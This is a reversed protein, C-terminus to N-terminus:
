SLYLPEQVKDEQIAFRGARLQEGKERVRRSILDSPMVIRYDKVFPTSYKDEEEKIVMTVLEGQTIPKVQKKRNKFYYLVGLAGIGLLVYTIFNDKKM